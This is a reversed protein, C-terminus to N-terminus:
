YDPREEPTPVYGSAIDAITPSFKNEIIFVSTKKMTECYDYNKLEEHWIDITTEPDMKNFLVPYSYFIKKIIAATETKTM